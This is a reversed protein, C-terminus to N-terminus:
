PGLELGRQSPLRPQGVTGPVVPAGPVPEPPQAVDFRSAQLWVRGAPVWVPHGHVQEVRVPEAVGDTIDVFTGDVVALGEGNADLGDGNAIFRALEGTHLGLEPLGNWRSGTDYARYTADTRPGAVYTWGDQPLDIVPRRDAQPDAVVECGASFRTAAAEGTLHASAQEWLAVGSQGCALVLAQGRAAVIADGRAFVVAQDTAVLHASGAVEVRGSRAVVDAAVRRALHVVEGPDADILIREHSNTGLEDLATDLQAQTSVTISM